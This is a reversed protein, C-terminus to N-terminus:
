LQEVRASKIVKAWKAIEAKIFAAFAQPTGSAPQAGQQELMTRVEPNELVRAIDQNIKQVVTSSVRAPALVGYWTDTEFGPFGAEAITPLGPVLPSRKASSIALARVRNAKMQVSAVPTTAMMIQVEGGLLATMAPGAGKYPIHVIDIGAVSRFLEASLHSVGGNGSSSFNLQGPKARALSILEKVSKAPVAPHVVLVNPATAVMSVATFDRVPDYPLKKYLSVNLAHSMSVTQITYGDPVAKAVIDSGLTSGAGPRNDVVVPHPWLQTLKLAIIRGVIDTGGGPAFAIVMRVPRAPYGSPDAAGQALTYVSVAACLGTAVCLLVKFRM